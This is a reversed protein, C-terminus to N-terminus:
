SQVAQAGTGPRITGTMLEALLDLSNAVVIRQGSGWATWNEPYAPCVPPVLEVTSKGKRTNVCTWGMKGLDSIAQQKTM